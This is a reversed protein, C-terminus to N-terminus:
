SVEFYATHVQSGETNSRTVTTAVALLDSGELWSNVAKFILLFLFLIVSTWLQPLCAEAQKLQNSNQSYELEKNIDHLKLNWKNIIGSTSSSINNQLTEERIRSSSQNLRELIQDMSDTRHVILLNQNISYLNNQDLTKVLSIYTDLNQISFQKDPDEYEEMFIRDEIEQYRFSAKFNWPFVVSRVLLVFHKLAVFLFLFIIFSASYPCRFLAKVGV